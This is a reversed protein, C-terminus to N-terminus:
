VKMQWSSKEKWTAVLLQQKAFKDNENTPKYKVESVRSWLSPNKSSVCEGSVKALLMHM